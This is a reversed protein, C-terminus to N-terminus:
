LVVRKFSANRALRIPMMVFPQRWPWYRDSGTKHVSVSALQSIADTDVQLTAIRTPGDAIPSGVLNFRLTSPRTGGPTETRKPALDQLAASFCKKVFLSIPNMVTSSISRPSNKYDCSLNIM